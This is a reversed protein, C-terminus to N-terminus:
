RRQTPKWGRRGGERARQSSQAKAKTTHRSKVKGSSREVVAWGSGRRRISTPM